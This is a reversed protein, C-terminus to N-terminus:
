VKFKSIAAQLKQSMQSLDNASAAVEQLAALQQTTSESVIQAASSSQKAINASETVSATIEESGASMQEAISSVDRIQDAVQEIAQLILQFSDGAEHVIKSGVAVERTGEGMASVALKTDIQIQEILSNIKNASSGSQEALKRVEGAVVAFGRGNEGARAAEIAANLALLNTQTAIGSIVSVISGIEISQKELQQVMSASHDVKEAISNMQRIVQQLLKNGHIAKVTADMSVETVTSSTEAIRQIGISMEEMARASEQSTIGQAEAGKAVEFISIAIENSAAATEESSASLQESSASVDQSNANVDKILEQLNRQMQAFSDTLKGIEDRSRSKITQTLDGKAISQALNMLRIIPRTIISSLFLAIAIGLLIDVICSTLLQRNVEDIKKVSEVNSADYETTFSQILVDTTTYITSKFVDTQEDLVKYQENLQEASLTSRKNFVEVVKDFSQIYGESAVKLNNAAETENPTDLSSAVQEILKTLIVANKKYEEIAGQSQIIIVDAQNSYLIGAYNKIELAKKLDSARQGNENLATKVDKLKNYNLVAASSFLLIVIFIGLLIKVKVSRNKIMILGGAKRKTISNLGYWCM